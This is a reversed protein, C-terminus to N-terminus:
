RSSRLFLYFLQGEYKTHGAIVEATDGTGIYLDCRGASRIAGGTDQDLVLAQYSVPRLGGDAQLEPIKTKVACLAGRPFISKDTAISRYPTVPAGLSGYPGGGDTETFFVYSANRNLYGQLEEPQAAFFRRIRALSLEDSSFRGDAVLARGISTYPHDTKGAYGVNMMEGSPMRIKASGQVHIIFADLPNALWALELGQGILKEGSEIEERTWYSVVSEGQRRGLPTGDKAKVLDDPLKYIPYKFVDSRERSGAFIPQYYATFLVTGEGDWGVSRYVDYEVQIYGSFERADQARHLIVLFRELSAQVDAHTFDLFPYYTQSSPKSLYDLSNEIARRLSERDRWMARFDPYESRNTVLELARAGPALAKSYDKPEAEKEASACAGLVLFFLLLINRMQTSM